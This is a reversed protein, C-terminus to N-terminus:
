AKTRSPFDWRQMLEGEGGVIPIDPIAVGDTGKHLSFHFTQKRGSSEYTVSWWIVFDALEDPDEQEVVVFTGPAVIDFQKPKGKSEVVGMDPDSYHGGTEIRVDTMEVDTPNVLLLQLKWNAPYKPNPAREVLVLFPQTTDTWYESM